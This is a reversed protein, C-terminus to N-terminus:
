FEFAQQTHSIPTQLHQGRPQLVVPVAHPKFFRVKARKYIKAIALAEATVFATAWPVDPHVITSVDSMERDRCVGNISFLRRVRAGNPDFEHAQKLNHDIMYQEWVYIFAHGNWQEWRRTRQNYRQGANDWSRTAANWVRGPRVPLQLTRQLGLNVEQKRMVESFYNAAVEQAAPTCCNVGVDEYDFEGVDEYGMWLGMANMRQRTKEHIDNYHISTLVPIGNHPDNIMDKSSRKIESWRYPAIHHTQVNGDPLSEDAMIGFLSFSCFTHSRNFYRHQYQLVDQRFAVQEADTRESKKFPSM